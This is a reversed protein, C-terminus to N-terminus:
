LSDLRGTDIANSFNPPKATAAGDVSPAGEEEGREQCSGAIRLSDM